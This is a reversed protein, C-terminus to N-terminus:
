HTILNDEKGLSLAFEFCITNSSGEKLLSKIHM